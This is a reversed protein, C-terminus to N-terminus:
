SDVLVATYAIYNIYNLQLMVKLHLAWRSHGDDNKISYSRKDCFTSLYLFWSVISVATYANYNIYNLQLM